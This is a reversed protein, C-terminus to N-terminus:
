GNNPITENQKFVIALLSDFTFKDFKKIIQDYEIKNKQM